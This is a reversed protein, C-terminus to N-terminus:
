ANDVHRWPPHRTASPIAFSAGHARASATGPCVFDDLDDVRPAMRAGRVAPPSPEDVPQERSCAFEEAQDHRDLTSAAPMGVDLETRGARAPQPREGCTRLPNFAVRRGEDLDAPLRQERGDRSARVTALEGQGEERELPVSATGERCFEGGPKGTGELDGGAAM